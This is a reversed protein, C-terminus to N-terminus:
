RILIVAGSVTKNVLKGDGNGSPHQYKIIYAYTGNPCEKENMDRGDWGIMLSETQFVLAGTRSYIYMQGQLTPDSLKPRFHDNLGDSNPSFANPIFLDKTCLQVYVSDTVICGDNWVTVSYTGNNTAWFTPFTTLSDQWLYHDFGLGSGANLEVPDCTFLYLDEGLDLYPRHSVSVYFDTSDVCNFNTYATQRYWVGLTPPALNVTDKNGVMRGTEIEKWTYHYGSQQASYITTTDNECIITDGGVYMIPLPHVVVPVEICESPGCDNEWRVFYSIDYTPAAITLHAGSGIYQASSGCIYQYWNVVLGVGGEAVMTISDFAGFCFDNNGDQVYATDPMVPPHKILFYSTDINWCGMTDIYGFIVEYTGEPLDPNLTAVGSSDGGVMQICNCDSSIHGGDFTGNVVGHITVLGQDSCLEADLGEIALEPRVVWVEMSYSDSCNLGQHFYTITYPGGIGAVTPKFIATGYGTTDLVNPNPHDCIFTGYPAQSGYIVVNAADPCYHSDLGTFFVEPVPRITTRATYTSDCGDTTSFVTYTIAIPGEPAQSPDFTVMNPSLSDLGPGEWVGGPMLGVLTDLPDNQCYANKLGIIQASPVSDVYIDQTFVYECTDSLIIQLYKYYITHWGVGANIASFTGTGNGQDTVGDGSFRAYQNNGHLQFAPYEDGSGMRVCITSPLADFFLPVTEYVEVEKTKTGTCGTILDIYEYVVFHVGSGAVVPDFYIISDIVTIGLGGGQMYFTGGSPFGILQAPAANGCYKSELGTFDVEPLANVTIVRNLVSQCNSSAIYTYTITHVGPGAVSPDFLASDIEHDNTFNFIGNGSFVGGFQNGTIYVPEDDVCYREELNYMYLPITDYVVVTITDCESFCGGLSEWRVFFSYRGTDAPLNVYISDGRGIFGNENGCHGRYWYLEDGDSHLGGSATLLVPDTSNSCTTQPTALYNIPRTPIPYVTITISDLIVQNCRNTYASFYTTTTNPAPNLLLITDNTPNSLPTGGYSGAFWQVENESNFVTLTIPAQYDACFVSDSAVIYSEHYFLGDVDIVIQQCESAAIAGACDKEWRAYIVTPETPALIAIPNGTGIANEMTCNTKFWRLVTGEGGIVNLHLTDITGACFSNTDVTIETPMIPLPVVEVTISDCDSRGCFENEWYVCYTTTELPAPITLTLITDYILGPVGTVVEGTECNHARWVLTDVGIENGSKINAKLTVNGGELAYSECLLDPTASINMPINPITYIHDVVFEKSFDCSHYDDVFIAYTHAHLNYANQTTAENTWLYEYPPTGGAINLLIYGTTDEENPCYANQVIPNSEMCVEQLKAFFGDEAQAATITLNGFTANQNFKGSVFINKNNDVDISKVTEMGNGGIKNAWVVVPIDQNYTHDNITHSYKAVFVDAANPTTSYLTIDNLTISDRFTGAVYSNGLIDTAITSCTDNGTGGITTAWKLNGNRDFKQIFGDTGGAGTYTHLVYGNANNRVEASNEFTGTHYVFGSYDVDLSGNTEHGSGNVTRAWKFDGKWDYQALFIDNTTGDRFGIPGQYNGSVYTNEAIDVVIATGVQEQDSELTKIWRLSGNNDFRAVFVNAGMGGTVTQGQVTMSGEFSGTVHFHGDDCVHIANIYDNFLGGISIAFDVTGNPLYKVVYGDYNANGASSIWDDIGVGFRTATNFSGAVFVNGENDVGAGRGFTGDESSTSGKLWAITGDTAIKAIFMDRNAGQNALSHTSQDFQVETGYTGVQYVFNRDVVVDEVVQNTIGYARLASTWETSDLGFRLSDPQAIEVTKQVACGSGSETVSLTYIGPALGDIRHNPTATAWTGSVGNTWAYTFPATGNAISNVTITGNNAGYCTVNTTTFTIVMKDLVNFFCSSSLLNITPYLQSNVVCRYYGEDSVQPNNITYTSQTAGAINTWPATTNARKQWQYYVVDLVDCEVTISFSVPTTNDGECIAFDDPPITIHPQLAITLRVVDTIITDCITSIRCRYYGADSATASLINYNWSNSIPLWPDNETESFQWQYAIHGYDNPNGTIGTTFSVSGGIITSQSVPQIVDEEEIRDFVRIIITDTTSCVTEGDTLTETLYLRETTPNNGFEVTVQHTETSTTFTAQTPQRLSWAFTTDADPDPTTPYVPENLNIFYTRTDGVCVTDYSLTSTQAFVTCVFFLQLSFLLLIGVKKM